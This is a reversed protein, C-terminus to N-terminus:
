PVVKNMRSLKRQSMFGHLRLVENEPQMKM